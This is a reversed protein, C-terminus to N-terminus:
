STHENDNIHKNILLSLQRHREQISQYKLSDRSILYNFTNNDLLLNYEELFAQKIPKSNLKKFESDSLKSLLSTWVELLAKNIPTRRNRGYSKRFTHRGFLLEARKMGNIFLRELEDTDSILVDDRTIGDRKTSEERFFKESQKSNFDPMLNIIRM